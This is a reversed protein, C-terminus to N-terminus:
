IEKLINKDIKPTGQVSKLYTELESLDAKSIYNIIRFKENLDREEELIRNYEEELINEKVTNYMLNLTYKFDNFKREARDIVIDESVPLQSISNIGNYVMLFDWYDTTGYLTYSIHEILYDNPCTYSLKYDNTFYKDPINHLLPFSTFNSLLNDNVLITGFKLYKNRMYDM